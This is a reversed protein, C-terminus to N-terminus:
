HGANNKVLDGLTTNPSQKAKLRIAEFVEKAKGQVRIVRKM